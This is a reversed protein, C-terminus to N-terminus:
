LGGSCLGFPASFAVHTATKSEQHEKANNANQFYLSSIM